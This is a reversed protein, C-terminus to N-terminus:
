FLYDKGNFSSLYIEGSKIYAFDYWRETDSLISDLLIVNGNILKYIEISIDSYHGYEPKGGPIETIIVLEPKGDGDLDAIDAEFLNSTNIQCVFNYYQEVIVDAPADCLILDTDIWQKEKFDNEGILEDEVSNRLNDNEELCDVPSVNETFFEIKELCSLSNQTEKDTDSTNTNIPIVNTNPRIIADGTEALLTNQNGPSYGACGCSQVAVFIFIVIIIRKKM